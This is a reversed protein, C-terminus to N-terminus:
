QDPGANWDRLDMLADALDAQDIELEPEASELEPEASELLSYQEDECPGGDRPTVSCGLHGYCCPPWPYEPYHRLLTDKVELRQKMTM